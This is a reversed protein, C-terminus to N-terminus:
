RNDLLEEGAQDVREEWEAVRDVDGGWGGVEIAKFYGFLLKVAQENALLNALWRREPRCQLM